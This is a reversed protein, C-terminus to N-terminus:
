RPRRGRPGPPTGGEVVRLGQVLSRPVPSRSPLLRLGHRVVEVQADPYVALVDPLVARVRQALHSTRGTESGVQAALAQWRLLLPQELRQLRYALLTYLDLGLSNDKLHAIADRVLPVAHERLHEHFERTLEVTAQWRTGNGEEQGHWLSLGAVLRQDRIITESAGDEARTNWQLTFECRAIRLSQERIAAITGRPGGTVPLGLSRIWASMSPGLSVTRSRVGETQLFIMILRARTGYPVGVRTARGGAGRMVGPSVMLHFRGSSREWILDNSAPRAHPLCTQCLGSHSFALDDEAPEGLVASAAAIRDLERRRGARDPIGAATRRLEAAGFLLLQRHIEAM